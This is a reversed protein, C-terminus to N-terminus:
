GVIIYEDDEEIIPSLGQNVENEEDDNDVEDDESDDEDDSNEVNHGALLGTFTRDQSSDNILELLEKEIETLPQRKAKGKNKSKRVTSGTQQNSHSARKKEGTCKRTNKGPKSARGYFNKALQAGAFFAVKAADLALSTKFDSSSTSDEFVLLIWISFARQLNEESQFYIWWGQIIAYVGAEIVAPRNTPFIKTIKRSKELIDLRLITAVSSSQSSLYYLDALTVTAQLGKAIEAWFVWETSASYRLHATPVHGDRKKKLAKYLPAVYVPSFATKSERSDILTLNIEHPNVGSELDDFAKCVVWILSDSTSIFPTGTPSRAMHHALRQKFYSSEPPIPTPMRGIPLQFESARFYSPSNLGASKPGWKRFLLAPIGEEEVQKQASSSANPFDSPLSSQALRGAAPGRPPPCPTDPLAESLSRMDNIPSDEVLIIDQDPFVPTCPRASEMEDESDSMIIIIDRANDPLFDTRTSDLSSQRAHMGQTSSISNTLQPLQRQTNLFPNNIPQSQQTHRHTSFVPINSPQPQRRLASRRLTMDEVLRHHPLIGRSRAASEVRAILTNIEPTKVIFDSEQIRIRLNNKNKSLDAKKRRCIDRWYASCKRPTLAEAMPFMETMIAAIDHWSNTFWRRFVLLAALEEDTWSRGHFNNIPPELRQFVPVRSRVTTLDQEPTSRISETPPRYAFDEFNPLM